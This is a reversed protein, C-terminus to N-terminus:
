ILYNTNRFLRKKRGPNSRSPQQFASGSLFLVPLIGSLDNAPFQESLLFRSNESCWAQRITAKRPWEVHSNSPRRVPEFAARERALVANADLSRIPASLDSPIGRWVKGIRNDSPRRLDLNERGLAPLVLSSRTAFQLTPDDYDRNTRKYCDATVRQGIFHRLTARGFLCRM